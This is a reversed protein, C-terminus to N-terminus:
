NCDTQCNALRFKFHFVLISSEIRNKVISACNLISAIKYDMDRVINYKCLKCM